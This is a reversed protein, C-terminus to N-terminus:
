RTVSGGGGEMVRQLSRMGNSFDKKISSLQVDIINSSLSDKGGGKRGQWRLGKSGISNRGPNAESSGFSATRKEPRFVHPLRREKEGEASVTM